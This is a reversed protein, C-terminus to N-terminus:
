VNMNINTSFKTEGTLKDGVCAGRPLGTRQTFSGTKLIELPFQSFFVDSETCNHLPDEDYDLM